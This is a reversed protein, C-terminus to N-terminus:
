PKRSHIQRNIRAAAAHWKLLKAVTMRDLESPQFHFTFAVEEM